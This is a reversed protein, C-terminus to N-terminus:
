EEMIEKLQNEIKIVELADDPTITQPGMQTLVTNTKMRDLIGSLLSFLSVGNAMIRVKGNETIEISAEQAKIKIEDKDTIEVSSESEGGSYSLKVGPKLEEEYLRGLIFCNEFNNESMLDHDEIVNDKIPYGTMAVIVIDGVKYDYSFRTDGGSLQFAPINEVLPYQGDRDRLLPSVTFHAGTILKIEAKFLM